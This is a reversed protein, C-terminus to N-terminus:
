EKYKMFLYLLFYIVIITDIIASFLFGDSYTQKSNVIYFFVIFIKEVTAYLIIPLRWSTIFASLILFFGVLFIMISWHQILITYNEFLELKFIGELGSKPFLAIRIISATFIGSIVLFPKITKQIFTNM